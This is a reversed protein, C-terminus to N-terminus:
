QLPPGVVEMNHKARLANLSNEDAGKWETFYGEFGGPTVGGMLIGPDSGVNKFTHVAGRRIFIFSGAPAHSVTDGLQFDFSGKLVYFFEDEARHIHSGPGGGPPMVYRWVGFAGGTKEATALVETIFSEMGAPGPFKPANKPVVVFGESEDAVATSSAPLVALSIGFLGAIIKLCMTKMDIEELQDLGAVSYRVRYGPYLNTMHRQNDHWRKSRPKRNHSYASMCDGSISTRKAGLM